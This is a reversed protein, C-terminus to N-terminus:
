LILWEVGSGTYSSTAVAFQIMDISFNCYLLGSEREIENKVDRMGERASEREEMDSQWM